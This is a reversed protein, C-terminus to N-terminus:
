LFVNEGALPLSDTTEVLSIQGNVGSGTFNIFKVEFIRGKVLPDTDNLFLVRM